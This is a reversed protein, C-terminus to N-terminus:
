ACHLDNMEFGECVKQFLKVEDPYCFEGGYMKVYALIMQLVALHIDDCGSLDFLRPEPASAQLFDRLPVVEDEYVVGTLVVMNEQLEMGM